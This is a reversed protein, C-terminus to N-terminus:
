RIKGNTPAIGSDEHTQLPLKEIIERWVDTIHEKKKVYSNEELM